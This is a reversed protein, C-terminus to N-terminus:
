LTQRWREKDCDICACSCGQACETSPHACPVHVSMSVVSAERLVPGREHLLRGEPVRTRRHSPRVGVREHLQPL